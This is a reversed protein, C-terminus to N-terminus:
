FGHVIRSCTKKFWRFGKKISIKVKGEVAYFKYQAVRKKRKTEPANWWSSHKAGHQRSPIDLSPASRGTYLRNPKKRVIEGGRVGGSNVNVIEGGM